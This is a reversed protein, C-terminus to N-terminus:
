ESEVLSQRLVRVHKMEEAIIDELAKTDKRDTLFDKLGSYFVISDKEKEIALKLVDVRNERGSLETSPDPQIGFVALGAMATAKMVDGGGKGTDDPLMRPDTYRLKMQEFVKVHQTEWQALEVFLSQTRRGSSLGAAHRYFKAGNREIREAIELAEFATLETDM